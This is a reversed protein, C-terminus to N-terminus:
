LYNPVVTRVDFLWETAYGLLGYKSEVVGKILDNQERISLGFKTELVSSVNEYDFWFVENRFDQYFYVKDGKEYCFGSEYNIKDCSDILDIIFQEEPRMPEIDEIWDFDNSENIPEEVITFRGDSLRKVFDKYPRKSHHHGGVWFTVMHKDVKTVTCVPQVGGARTPGLFKMDVYPVTIDMGEAWDFDSERLIKKIIKKM